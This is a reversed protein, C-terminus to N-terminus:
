SQQGKMFEDLDVTLFRLHKKAKAKYSKIEHLMTYKYLTSISIGLYVAAEPASLFKSEKPSPKEVRNKTLIDKIEKQTEEIRLLRLNILALTDQM